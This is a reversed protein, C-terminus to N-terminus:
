NQAHNTPTAARPVASNTPLEVPRNTPSDMTDNAADNGREALEVMSFKRALDYDEESSDDSCAFCYDAAAQFALLAEHNRVGSFDPAVRERVFVYGEDSSDPYSSDLPPAALDHISILRYVPLDEHASMNTSVSSIHTAAPDHTGSPLPSTATAGEEPPVTVATPPPSATVDEAVAGPQSGGAEVWTPSAPRATGATPSPSTVVDEIAAGSQSGSAEVWTPTALRAAGRRTHRRPRRGRRHGDGIAVFDLSGFWIAYGAPILDSTGMPFPNSRSAM